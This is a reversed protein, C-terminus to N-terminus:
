IQWTLCSCIYHVPTKRQSQRWIRGRRCPQRNVTADRPEGQSLVAKKNINAFVATTQQNQMIQVSNIQLQRRIV